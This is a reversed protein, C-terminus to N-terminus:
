TAYAEEMPSVVPDDTAQVRNALTRLLGLTHLSVKGDKMSFRFTGTFRYLMLMWLAETTAEWREDRTRTMIMGM